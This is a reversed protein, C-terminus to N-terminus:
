PLARALPAAAARRGRRRRRVSVLAGLPLGLGVCLLGIWVTWPTTAVPVRRARAAIAQPAHVRRADAQVRLGHPAPGLPLPRRGPARAGPVLPVARPVGALLTLPDVYRETAAERAGLHLHPRRKRPDESRGVTGLREGRALMENGRATVSGLQQYTAILPGCRVSVTRGGRPVRGAFSVRGGCAARVVAGLPAGLDVGRHQGPAFREASLSFARLVPGAVPRQWTRGREAAAATATPLLALVLVLAPLM